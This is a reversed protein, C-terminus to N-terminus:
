ASEWARPLQQRWSIVDREFERKTNLLEGVSVDNKTFLNVKKHLLLKLTKAGALALVYEQVNADTISDATTLKYRGKLYLTFGGPIARDAKSSFQVYGNVLEWLSSDIPDPAPNSDGRVSLYIDALATIGAPKAYRYTGSTYTLSTDWVENTVYTDNWAETLARQKESSSFTTDNSDGLITNLMTGATAFDLAAM